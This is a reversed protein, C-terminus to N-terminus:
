LEWCASMGSPPAGTAGEIASPGDGAGEDCAGCAESVGAGAMPVPSCCFASGFASEVWGATFFRRTEVLFGVPLGLPRGLSVSMLFDFVSPWGGDRSPSGCSGTAVSAAAGTAIFCAGVGEETAGEGLRVETEADLRLLVEAGLM